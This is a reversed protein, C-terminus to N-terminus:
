WIIKLYRIFLFLECDTISDGGEGRWCRLWEYFFSLKTKRLTLCYLYWVMNKCDGHLIGKFNQWKSHLFNRNIYTIPMYLNIPFYVVYFNPDECECTTCLQWKDTIKISYHCLDCHKLDVIPTTWKHYPNSMFLITHDTFSSYFRIGDM